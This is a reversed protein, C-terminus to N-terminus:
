FIRALRPPEANAPMTAPGINAGNIGKGTERGKAVGDASEARHVDGGGVDIDGIMPRADNGTSEVRRGVQDEDRHEEVGDVAAQRSEGAMGGIEAYLEVAEGVDDAEAAGGGKDRQLQKVRGQKVRPVIRVRGQAM